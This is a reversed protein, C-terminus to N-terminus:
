PSGMLVTTATEEREQAQRRRTGTTFVPNREQAERRRLTDLVEDDTTPDSITAASALPPASVLRRQPLFNLAGGAGAGAPGSGSGAGASFGSIGGYIGAAGLGSFAGGKASAQGSVGGFTASVNGGGHGYGYAPIDGPGRLQGGNKTVGGGRSRLLRKEDKNIYALEHKQGKITTRKPQAM